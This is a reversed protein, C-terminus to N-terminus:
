KVYENLNDILSQLEELSNTVKSVSMNQENMSALVEEVSASTEETVSSISTVEDTVENSATQLQKILGDVTKTQTVFSDNNQSIEGFLGEFEKTTTLSTKVVDAGKYATDSAQESKSKVEALIASIEEVSKRSNEALNRVEDAVVAFGKGHEGARAAEIAANLALLNTQESIDNISTLIDGIKQTKENLEDMSKTTRHIISNVEQMDEILDVVRDKGQKTVKVTGQSALMMENSAESLSTFGQFTTVMSKNIDNVSHVQSEISNAVENFAIVVEESITQTIDTNEKLGSSFDDLIKISNKIQSLLDSTKENSQQAQTNEEKLKNRLRQSFLSQTILLIAILTVFLLMPILNSSVNNTEFLYEWYNFYFYITLGINIISTIIIAKIDQYLSILAMTFFIMLYSVWNKGNTFILYSSLTTGIIIIYMTPIILVKRYHLIGVVINIIITPYVITAVSTLSEGALFLTAIALVNSILLLWVLLGNRKQINDIRKM